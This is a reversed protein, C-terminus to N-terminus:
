PHNRFYDLAIEKNHFAIKLTYIEQESFFQIKQGEMLNFDSLKYNGKICFVNYEIGNLVYKKFFKFDRIDYDLEEKTERVLAEGISEGDEVNGGIFAWHDPFPIDPNDDRLM